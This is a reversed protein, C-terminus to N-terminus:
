RRSLLRFLFPISFFFYYVPSPQPLSSILSRDSRLIALDLIRWLMLALAVFTALEGALLMALVAGREGLLDCYCRNPV